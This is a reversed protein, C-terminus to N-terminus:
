RAPFRFVRKTRISTLRMHMKDDANTVYNVTIGAINSPKVTYEVGEGYYVDILNLNCDYHYLEKAGKYELYDGASVNTKFSIYEGLGFWGECFKIESITGHDEGPYGARIRFHFPEEIGPYKNTPLLKDFVINSRHLVKDGCDVNGGGYGTTGSEMLLNHEGYLMNEEQLFMESLIWENDTKELHWDTRQEQMLKKVDDTLVGSYRFESWLKIMDLYEGLKGNKVDKIEICSGADFAANRSLIFEMVEPTTPEKEGEADGIRYWGLMGPILNKRFREQHSARYNYMGGRGDCDYYPEGWNFYCHTHWRYHSSGSADCLLESGTIEFVRRVFESLGYEGRGNFGCGELGDFSMRRIGSEKIVNAINQAIEDQLALSPFLTGFGHDWLRLVEDGKGHASATTGFAGRQCDILCMRNEDFSSFTILEDGIRFVNLTSRTRYSNVDSIHVTTDEASVPDLLIAKDMVLLEKHPVPSVYPDHTHLFNSLTHFGTDIGESRAYQVFKKFDEMGNPYIERDIEFHGWSKFPNSFYLCHVGARKAMEIQKEMDSGQIVLYIQTAKPSRKAWEGDITPHPLGYELEIQELNDLLREKDDAAVLAVAAGEMLADPGPVAQVYLNNERIEDRTMDTATCQLTVKGDKDMDAAEKEMFPSVGYGGVTKPNLSQICVASGDEAWAVGLIDGYDVASSATYPGFVFADAKPAKELVLKIYDGNAGNAVAIFADGIEYHLIVGHETVESSIPSYAKGSIIATGLVSRCIVEKDRLTATFTGDNYFHLKM